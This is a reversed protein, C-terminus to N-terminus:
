LSLSNIKAKLEIISKEAEKFKKMLAAEETNGTLGLGPCSKISGECIHYAEYGGLAIATAGFIIEMTATYRNFEAIDTDRFAKDKIWKTFGTPADINPKSLRGKIGEYMLYGGGAATAGAIGLALFDSVEKTITSDDGEYRRLGIYLAALGLTIKTWGLGKVFKKDGTYANYIGTTIGLTGSIMVLAGGTTDGGTVFHVVKDTITQDEKSCSPNPANPNFEKQIKDQSCKELSSPEQATLSLTKSKNTEDNTQSSIKKFVQTDIYIEDFGPSKVFAIYEQKSAKTMDALIKYFATKSKDTNKEKELRDKVADYLDGAVKDLEEKPNIKSSASIIKKTIHSAEESILSPSQTAPEHDRCAYINLILFLLYGIKIKMNLRSEKNSVM